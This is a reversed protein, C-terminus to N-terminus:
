EARIRANGESASILLEARQELGNQLTPDPGALEELISRNGRRLSAAATVVDRLGYPDRQLGSLQNEALSWNGGLAHSVALPVMLEATKPCGNEVALTGWRIAPEPRTLMWENQNREWM